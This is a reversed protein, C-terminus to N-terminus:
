PGFRFRELVDSFQDTAITDQWVLEKWELAARAGAVVQNKRMTKVERRREPKVNSLNRPPKSVMHMALLLLIRAYESRDFEEQWVPILRFRSQGVDRKKRPRAASM